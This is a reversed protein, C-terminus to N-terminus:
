SYRKGKVRGAFGENQCASPSLRIKATSNILKAEPSGKLKDAEPNAKWAHNADAPTSKFDM